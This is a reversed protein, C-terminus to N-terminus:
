PLSKKINLIADVPDLYADELAKKARSASVGTARMICRHRVLVATYTKPVKLVDKSLFIFRLACDIEAVHAHVPTSCMM